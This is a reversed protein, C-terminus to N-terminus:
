TGINIERDCNQCQHRNRQAADTLKTIEPSIETKIGCVKNAQSLFGFIDSLCSRGFLLSGRINEFIYVVKFM